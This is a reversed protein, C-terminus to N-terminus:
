ASGTSYKKYYFFFCKLLYDKAFRVESGGCNNGNDDYNIPTHFNKKWASGRNVPDMLMGHGLINSVQFLLILGIVCMKISAM